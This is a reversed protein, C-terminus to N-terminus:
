DTRAKIYDSQAALADRIEHVEALVEDCKSICGAGALQQELMLTIQQSVSRREQKALERLREEMEMGVYVTLNGNAM